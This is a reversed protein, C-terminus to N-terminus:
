KERCDECLKYEEGECDEECEYYDNCDPNSCTHMHYTDCICHDDCFGCWRCIFEYKKTDRKTCGICECQLLERIQIKSKSTIVTM